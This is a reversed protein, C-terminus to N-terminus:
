HYTVVYTLGASNDGPQHLNAGVQVTLDYVPTSRAHLDGGGNTKYVREVAAPDIGLRHADTALIRHMRKVSGPGGLSIWTKNGSSTVDEIPRQIVGTPLTLRIALKENWARMIDGEDMYPLYGLETRSPRQTLDLRYVGNHVIKDVVPNHFYDIRFNYNVEVERNDLGIVEVYTDLWDRVFGNLVGRSPASTGLSGGITSLLRETGTDSLGLTPGDVLLSRRAKASDSFRRQLLIKRPPLPATSTDTLTHGSDAEVISAPVHLTGTSLQVTAQVVDRKSAPGFGAQYAQHNAGKGFGWEKRTPKHRLDLSVKGNHIVTGPSQNSGDDFEVTCGVLTQFAVVVAVTLVFRRLATAM